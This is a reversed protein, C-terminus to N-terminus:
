IMPWYYTKEWLCRLRIREDDANEKEIYKIAIDYDSEKRFEGTLEEPESLLKQMEM